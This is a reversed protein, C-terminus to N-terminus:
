RRVLRVAFTSHITGEFVVCLFSFGKPQLTRYSASVWLSQYGTGGQLISLNERSCDQSM